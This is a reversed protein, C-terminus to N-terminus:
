FQMVIQNHRPKMALPYPSAPGSKSTEQFKLRVQAIKPVITKVAAVFCFSLHPSIVMYKTLGEFERAM